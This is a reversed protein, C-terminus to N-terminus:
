NLAAGQMIMSPTLFGFITCHGHTVAYGQGAATPTRPHDPAFLPQRRPGDHSTQQRLGLAPGAPLQRPQGSVPLRWRLPQQAGRDPIGLLDDGVHLAQQGIPEAVRM